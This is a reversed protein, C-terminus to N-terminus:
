NMPQMMELIRDAVQKVSMKAVDIEHTCLERYMPLRKDLLERVEEVNGGLKTLSPRTAQTQPDNHIRDHLTEADAHLYVVEFGSQKILARNEERTVAGGGLAVVAQEWAITSKIATTELLRFYPEGEREFIEKITMGSANTIFADTDTFDWGLKRAVHQGVSTKGSGRYGILFLSM